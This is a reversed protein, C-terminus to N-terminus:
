RPRATGARRKRVRGPLRGRPGKPRAAYSAPHVADVVSAIGRSLPSDGDEGVARGAVLARDAAAQDEPLFHLGAVLAFGEVMAAVDPQSWGLSSRMRNVVVRVPVEGLVERLDVLGRALRALGVPDASGVVVIDDAAELSELTLAHPAGTGRDWTDDGLDFGADVVVEWSKRAEELVEGLAGPRVEVWRDARPLGTLVGLMPTVARCASPLREPLSGSAALRSAALVGSVQDLVGLHQAVAAARPDADVLLTMTDRRALESAFATALTTRGPSGAPGWVAVVKHVAGDEAPRQHLSAGPDSRPRTDAGGEVTSVVDPLSELQDSTVVTRVDLRALRVALDEGVGSAAVAVARVDHRRLHAVAEADLGPALLSVVAVDAQGSAATAMLDDVDVCRKLVVIGPRTGLQALAPSEWAAGSALLLVCIM